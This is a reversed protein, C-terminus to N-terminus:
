SFHLLIRHKNLVFFYVRVCVCVSMGKHVSSCRMVWYDLSM